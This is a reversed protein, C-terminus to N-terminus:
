FRPTRNAVWVNNNQPNGDITETTIVHLTYTLTDKNDPDSLDWVCYRIIATGGMVHPTCHILLLGYEGPFVPNMLGSDLLSAYCLSNDCVSAEWFEPVIASVKEWGLYITDSIANEQQISLTQLDELVGTIEISDNPIIAYNQGVAFNTVAILFVTYCISNFHHRRSKM